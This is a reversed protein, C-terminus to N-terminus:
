TSPEDNEGNLCDSKTTAEAPQEASESPLEAITKIDIDANATDRAKQELTKEDNPSYHSEADEVPESLKQLSGSLPDYNSSECNSEDIGDEPIQEMKDDSGANEDSM